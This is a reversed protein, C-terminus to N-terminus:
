SSRYKKIAKEYEYSGPGPSNIRLSVDKRDKGFNYGGKKEEFQSKINYEGPGTINPKFVEKVHGHM